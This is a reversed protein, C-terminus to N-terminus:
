IFSENFAKICEERIYNPLENNSFELRVGGENSAFYNCHYRLSDHKDKPNYIPVRKKFFEIHRNNIQEILEAFLNADFKKNNKELDTM